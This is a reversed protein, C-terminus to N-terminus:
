ILNNRFTEYKLHILFRYQVLFQELQQYLTTHMAILTFTLSLHTNLYKIKYKKRYFNPDVQM